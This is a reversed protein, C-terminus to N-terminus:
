GAGEKHMKDAIDLIQQSIKEVQTLTEWASDPDLHAKGDTMTIQVHARMQVVLGTIDGIVALKNLRNLHTNTRKIKSEMKRKHLAIDIAVMLEREEVPKVLYGYPMTMKARKLIASDAFATTYLIPIDFDKRIAAAAEIGDKDSDLVIDMLILDPLDGKLNRVFDIAEDASSITDMVTCGNSELTQMLDFALLQEDEVILVNLNNM